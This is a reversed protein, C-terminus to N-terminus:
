IDAATIGLHEELIRVAIQRITVIMVRVDRTNVGFSPALVRAIEDAQAREGEGVLDDGGELPLAVDDLEPHDYTVGVWYRAVMWLLEGEGRCAEVVMRVFGPGELPSLIFDAGGGSGGDALALGELSPSRWGSTLDSVHAKGMGRPSERNFREVVADFRPAEGGAAQEMQDRLQLLKGRRRVLTAVGSVGGCTASLRYDRLDNRCRAQLMGAPNVVSARVEPDSLMEEIMQHANFSVISFVDDFDQYQSLRYSSVLRNSIKELLPTFNRLLTDMGGARDEEPSEALNSIAESFTRADEVRGQGFTRVRGWGGAESRISVGAM